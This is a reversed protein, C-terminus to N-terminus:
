EGGTSTRLITGEAGVATGNNEDAFSVAMLSVSTGSSQRAWTEGGDTTRLITGSAGVATGVKADVL